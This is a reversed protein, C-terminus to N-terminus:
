YLSGGAGAAAEAQFACLASPLHARRGVLPTQSPCGACASAGCWAPFHAAVPLLACFLKRWGCAPLAGHPHCSAQGLACRAGGAYRGDQLLDAFPLSKSGPIRGSKLGPRPEPAEGRWRRPVAAAARPCVLSPPRQRGPGPGAPVPSGASLSSGGQTVVGRRGQLVGAGQGTAEGGSVPGCLRGTDRM